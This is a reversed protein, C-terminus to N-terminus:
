AGGLAKYKRYGVYVLVSVIAGCVTAAWLAPASHVGAGASAAEDGSSFLEEILQGAHEAGEKVRGADYDPAALLGNMFIFWSDLKEVLAASRSILVAPRIVLYHDYFVSLAERAEERRGEGIAGRLKGADQEFTARYELWLPKGKHSLADAALRIKAAALLAQREDFQVRNYVERSESVLSTLANLGELTTVGSYSLRTMMDAFRELQEKAEEPKGAKAERYLAAAVEDLLRLKDERGPEGDKGAAPGFWGGTVLLLVALTGAAFLPWRKRKGM